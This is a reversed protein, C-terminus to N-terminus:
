ARKKTHILSQGTSAEEFMEIQDLSERSLIAIKHFAERAEKHQINKIAQLAVQRVDNVPERLDVAFKSIKNALVHDVQNRITKEEDKLILIKNETQKIHLYETQLFHTLPVVSALTLVTVFDLSFDISGVNPLFIGILVVVFLLTTFTSYVFGLVIAILFLFYFFPSVFWGTVGIWLMLSVFVVLLYTKRILENSLTSRIFPWYAIGVVALLIYTLYFTSVIQKTAPSTTLLYVGLTLLAIFFSQKYTHDRM